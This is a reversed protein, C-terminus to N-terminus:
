DAAVIVVVRRNQARGDPTANSAIPKKSGFGRREISADAWGRALFERAVSEARRLSLAQNYPENGVNDSHGEIRMREIGIDAMARAVDALARRSDEPLTDQDVGFLLKVGLNLEWGEDGPVFGLRALTDAKSPPPPAPPAPEAPPTQCGFLTTATLLVAWLTARRRSTSVPM